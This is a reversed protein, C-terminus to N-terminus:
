YICYIQFNVSWFVGIATIVKKVCFIKEEYDRNSSLSYFEAQIM